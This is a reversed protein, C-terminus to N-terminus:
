GVRLNVFLCSSLSALDIFWDLLSGISKIFDKWDKGMEKQQKRQGEDSGEGWGERDWDGVSSDSSPPSPGDEDSRGM